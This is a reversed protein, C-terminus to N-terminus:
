NNECRTLKQFATPEEDRILTVIESVADTESHPWAPERTGRRRRAHELVGAVWKAHPLNFFSVEPTSSNMRAM